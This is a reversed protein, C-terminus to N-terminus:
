VVMREIPLVLIATGGLSKLVTIIGNIDEESVVAHIAVMDDTGMLPM